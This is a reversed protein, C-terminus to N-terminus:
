HQAAGEAEAQAQKQQQQVHQAYIADFNVPALLMQPFGGRTVLDSIAERVYPFLINPCFSGLVHGMQEAPFNEIKFIGAQQVEALYATQDGLKATVTVTLVVEHANQEMSTTASNLQVNVDPNWETQTFIAPSNPTEFSIDKTYIKQIAFNQAQTQAEAM